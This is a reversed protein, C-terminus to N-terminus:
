IKINANVCNLITEGTGMVHEGMFFTEVLFQIYLSM